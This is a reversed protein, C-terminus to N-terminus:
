LSFKFGMSRVRVSGRRPTRVRVRVKVLGRPQLKKQFSASVRIGSGIRGVVGSVSAPRGM